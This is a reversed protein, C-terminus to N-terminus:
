KPDEKVNVQGSPVPVTGRLVAAVYEAARATWFGVNRKRAIKEVAAAIVEVNERVSAMGGVGVLSRWKYETARRARNDIEIEMNRLNLWPREADGSGWCSDCVDHTIAACGMGGRWTSGNSYGRVGLGHCASCPTEVGRMRLIRQDIM